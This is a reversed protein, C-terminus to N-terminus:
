FEANLINKISQIVEMNKVGPELEVGSNLDLAYLMPHKLNIATSINEPSLGGSLFFSIKGNYKKLLNWDFTKGTGGFSDSKTDFLFYDSSDSFLNVSDFNFQDDVRFAKIVKVKSRVAQCIEPSEDGHLQAYNLGYESVKNLINTNTENVFVGVRKISKPLDIPISFDLGVYRKSKEYFIFGMFDPNLQAVDLINKPERMGCVKLKLSNM